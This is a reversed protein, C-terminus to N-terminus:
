SRPDYLVRVRCAKKWTQIRDYIISLKTDHPGPNVNTLSVVHQLHGVYMAVKYQASIIYIRALM